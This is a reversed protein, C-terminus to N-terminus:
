QNVISLLLERVDSSMVTGSQDYDAAESQAATFSETGLVSMLIARADLTDTVGNGDVDGTVAITAEDVVAENVVLQLKMGTALKGSTVVAGSANVVRLYDTDNMAAILTDVTTGVVVDCLVEDAITYSGSIATPASPEQAVGNDETINCAYFTVFTDTAGIIYMDCGVIRINGNADAHGLGKVYAGLDIYMAQRASPVAFDVNGQGAAASATITQRAGDKDIYAIHVNWAATGYVDLKLYPTANLNVVQSYDTHVYPWYHGEGGKYLTVSDANGYYPWIYHSDGTVPAQTVGEIPLLDLAVAYGSTAEELAKVRCGLRYGDTTGCDLDIQAWLQANTMAESTVGSAKANNLATQLESATAFDAQYTAPLCNDLLFETLVNAAAAHQAVTPHNEGGSKGEPLICFFYGANAGGLEAVAATLEAQYTIGMMGTCWVVKAGPNKERAMTMLNIAGAKFQANTLDIRGASAASQDNTGLNIVVIDAPPNFDYLGAETHDRWYSTYPFMDQLNLGTGQSNWGGCCGYGSTQTVRVNAGLNEGTVYAYTATGDQYVPYSANPTSITALNSAGGSISDGVVEMVIKDEPPAAMPTGTFTVGWVTVLASSAETQKYVEIHHYGDALGSALTVSKYVAKATTGTDIEVRSKVGDVIVSLFMNTTYRCLVDAGMLVDGGGNFYFEFGSGSTDMDLAGNVVTVRGQTKYFGQLDSFTYTKATSASVSAFPLATMLMAVVCIFALFRKM